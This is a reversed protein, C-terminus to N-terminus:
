GENLPRKRPAVERSQHTGLDDAKESGDAASRQRYFHIILAYPGAVLSMGILIALEEPVFRINGVAFTLAISAPVTVIALLSFGLFRLVREGWSGPILLAAFPIIAVTSLWGTVGEPLYIPAAANVSSPLAIAVASVFLRVLLLM